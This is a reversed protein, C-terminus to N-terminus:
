QAAFVHAARALDYHRRTPLSLLACYAKTLDLLRRADDVEALKAHVTKLEAPTAGFLLELEAYYDVSADLETRAVLEEAAARTATAVEDQDHDAASPKRTANTHLENAAVLLLLLWYVEQATDFSSLKALHHQHYQQSQQQQQQQQQQSQNDTATPLLLLLMYELRTPRNKADTAYHKRLMPLLHEIRYVQVDITQIVVLWSPTIAIDALQLLCCHSLEWDIARELSAMSENQEAAYRALQQRLSTAWSGPKTALRLLMATAALVVLWAAGSLVVELALFGVSYMADLVLGVRQPDLARPGLMGPYGVHGRLTGHYITRSANAADVGIARLSTLQNSTALVPLQVVAGPRRADRVPLLFSAGELGVLEYQLRRWLSPARAKKGVLSPVSWWDVCTFNGSATVYVGARLPLALSSLEHPETFAWDYYRMPPGSSVYALSVILLALIVLWQTKIRRCEKFLVSSSSRTGDAGDRGDHTQAVLRAAQELSGLKARVRRITEASPLYERAIPTDNSTTSM